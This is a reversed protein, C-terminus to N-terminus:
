GEPIGRRIVGGSRKFLSVHDHLNDILFEHVTLGNQATPGRGILTCRKQDNRVRSDALRKPRPRRHRGALDDARVERVRRDRGRAEVRIVGQYLCDGCLRFVHQDIRRRGLSSACFAKTKQLSPMLPAPGKKMASPRQLAVGIVSGYKPKSKRRSALSGAGGDFATIDITPRIPGAFRCVMAPSVVSSAVERSAAKAACNGSSVGTM